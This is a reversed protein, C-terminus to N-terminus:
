ETADNKSCLIRLLHFSSDITAPKHIQTSNGIGKRGSKLAGYSGAEIRTESIMTPIADIGKVRRAINM